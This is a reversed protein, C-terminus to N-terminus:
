PLGWKLLYAFSIQSLQRGQFRVCEELVSSFFIIVYKVFNQVHDHMCTVPKLATHRRYFTERVKGYHPNYKMEKPIVPGM